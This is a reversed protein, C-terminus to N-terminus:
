LNILELCRFFEKTDSLGDIQLVTNTINAFHAESIIGATLNKFKGVIEDVSLPNEPDGKRFFNEIEICRDGTEIEIKVPRCDPFIDNFQPDIVMEIKSILKRIAPDKLMDDSFKSSDVEGHILAAAACYPMSFKAEFSNNPEYNATLEYATQYTHIIIRKIETPQINYENRAKICADIPSHTHGCSAHVKFNSELIKFKEGLNRILCSPDPLPSMAKLFGKEGEFIAHPGTFGKQSAIASLQGNFGAKATHLVKTMAGDELFQWLGASQTGANGLADAIQNKNLKLLKSAAAAAGFTGCTATTHWIKYHSSGVAEGVRIAIDYGVIIATLLEKGSCDLAESLSLASPIVTVGPHLISWKHGDDMEVAHSIAGNAFTAWLVPVKKGIGIITAEERGGNQLAIEILSKCNEHNAGAIACGLWDLLCMKAKLIIEPSFDNFNCESIFEALKEALTM